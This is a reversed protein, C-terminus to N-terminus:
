KVRGISEDVAWLTECCRTDYKEINLDSHYPFDFNHWSIRQDRM